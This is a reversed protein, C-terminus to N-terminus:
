TNELAVEQKTSANMHKEITITYFDCDHPKTFVKSTVSSLIIRNHQLVSRISYFNM